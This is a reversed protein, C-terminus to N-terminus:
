CLAYQERRQGVGNVRVRLVPWLDLRGNKRMKARMKM